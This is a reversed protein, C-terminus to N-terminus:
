VWVMFIEKGNVKIQDQKWEKQGAKTFDYIVLYGRDLNLRDLYDWLQSLGREHAKSGKWIKLEVVYKQKLYTVVVDLRKEESIEVEKFDFGHGNIIPKIFALFLLRGERELFPEDRQSYEKKIFEQYKLLIKEFNLEDGKETFYGKFNYNDIVTNEVKATLYNYIRQEYLRNHITVRDHEQKFIGYIVGMNIVPNDSNFLKESGKLIIDTVLEALEPNNAINKILSDFNTNTEKLLIRVAEELDETTWEPNTRGPIIKEAIIKCLRSVLFPYGSTFYYLRESLIANNMPIEQERSYEQLMTEIEAPTLGLDVEFDTAINWPSNYKQEADPRLKLKLSKVDHVGALIVSQFTLDEGQNRRLYKNRLMGLFHLFLDNNSSQDVEDIILVVKKRSVAVLESIFDSLEGLTQPCHRQNLFSLLKEQGLYTFINKLQRLLEANFDPESHYSTIGMGEFSTNLVLYDENKRLERALLYLITTKGYQRPKTITFYEGAAIMELIKEIKGSVDAMYHKEPICVGTTNFKKQM